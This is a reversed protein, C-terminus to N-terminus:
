SVQLRISGRLRHAHEVTDAISVGMDSSAM